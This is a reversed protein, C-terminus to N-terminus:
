HSRWLRGAAFYSLVAGEHRSGGAHARCRRTGPLAIHGPPPHNRVTDLEGRMTAAKNAEAGTGGPPPEAPPLRVKPDLAVARGATPADPPRDPPGDAVTGRQTGGERQTRTTLLVTLREEHCAHSLFIISPMRWAHGKRTEPVRRCTLSKRYPRHETIADRADAARLGTSALPM